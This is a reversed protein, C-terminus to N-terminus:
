KNINRKLLYYFYKDWIIKQGEKDKLFYGLASAFPDGPYNCISDNNHIEIAIEQLHHSLFGFNYFTELFTLENEKKCTEECEHCDECLTILSVNDYEWPKKGSVYYKHHVNLISEGDGCNQCSFEDRQMIELRKKQWRPDRLLESYNSM